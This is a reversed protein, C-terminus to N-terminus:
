CKPLIRFIIVFICEFLYIFRDVISIFVETIFNPDINKTYLLDNFYRLLDQVRGIIKDLGQIYMYINVCYIYIYM